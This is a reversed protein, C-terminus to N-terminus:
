LSKYKATVTKQRDTYEYRSETKGIMMFIEKAGHTFVFTKLRHVRVCEDTKRSLFKRGRAAAVM